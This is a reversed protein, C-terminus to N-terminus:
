KYGVVWDISCGLKKCIDYITQLGLPRNQRLKTRTEPTLGKAKYVRKSDLKRTQGRAAISKELNEENLGFVLGNRRRYPEISDMLDKATLLPEDKGKGENVTKLFGDILMWFPEYTLEGTTGNKFTLPNEEFWKKQMSNPEIDKFEVIQSCPVNLANAIKVLLDTKPLSRGTGIATFRDPRIGCQEAVWKIKVGKSELVGKFPAMSILENSM